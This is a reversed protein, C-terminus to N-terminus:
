RWKHFDMGGVCNVIDLDSRMTEEHNDGDDEEVDDQDDYLDGGKVFLGPRRSM